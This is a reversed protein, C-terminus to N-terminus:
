RLPSVDDLMRALEGTADLRALEQFGGIPEGGIFIQPVTRRGTVELLWRRAEHDGEVDISRYPIGRADLLRMARVCFGCHDTHYVEVTKM